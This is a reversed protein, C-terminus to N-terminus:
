RNTLTIVPLHPRNHIRLPITTSGLGRSLIVKTQNKITYVGSTYKPFLGQDHSILGGIFPIRFQGGHEHGNLVLDPWLSVSNPYSQQWLLPRHVLLIKYQCERIDNAKLFRNRYTRGDELGLLALKSTGITLIEYQNDILKVGNKELIKKWQSLQCNTKEHNGTVGYVATIGALGQCLETLGCTLPNAKRDVIDGTMVILDPEQKKVLQTLYNISAANRPLHIDSLHVIKFGELEPPLQKVQLRIKEVQIWNNQLAGYVLGVAALALVSKM